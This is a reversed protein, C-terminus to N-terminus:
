WTSLAGAPACVVGSLGDEARADQDAAVAIFLVMVFSMVVAGGALAVWLLPRGVM